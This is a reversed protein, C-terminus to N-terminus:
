YFLLAWILISLKIKQSNQTKELLKETSFADFQTGNAVAMLFVKFTMGGKKELIVGQRLCVKFIDQFHPFSPHKAHSSADWVQPVFYFFVPYLFSFQAM